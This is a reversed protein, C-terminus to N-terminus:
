YKNRKLWFFYIKMRSRELSYCANVNDLVLLMIPVYTKKHVRPTTVAKLTRAKEKYIVRNFPAGPLEDHTRAAEM